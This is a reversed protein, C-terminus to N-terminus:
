WGQNGAPRVITWNGSVVRYLDGDPELCDMAVCGTEYHRIRHLPTNAGSPGAFYGAAKDRWYRQTPTHVTIGGVSPQTLRQGSTMPKQNNYTM